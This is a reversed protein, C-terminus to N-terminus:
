SPEGNFIDKTEERSYPTGFKIHYKIEYRNCFEIVKRAMKQYFEESNKFHRSQINYNM